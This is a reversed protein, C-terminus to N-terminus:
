VTDAFDVSLSFSCTPEMEDRMCDLVQKEITFSQQFYDCLVQAAETDCTTVSNGNGVVLDRVEAKNTQLKRMLSYFKKRNGKCSKILRKRNSDNDENIFTQVKNRQRKYENYNRQTPCSRYKKWCVNRSKIM